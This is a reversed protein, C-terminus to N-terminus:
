DLEAFGACFPCKGPGRVRSRISIQWKHKKNKRCIWFVSKMSNPAFYEPKLPKNAKTDWEAALEPHLDNFSKGPLPGPLIKFLKQYLPDNALGGQKIYAKITAATKKTLKAQKLISRLIGRTVKEGTDKENHLVDYPRLKKM